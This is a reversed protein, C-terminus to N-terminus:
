SLWVTLYEKFVGIIMLVMKLPRIYAFKIHNVVLDVMKKRVLHNQDRNLFLWGTFGVIFVRMFILVMNQPRIYAFKIHHVVLDVM